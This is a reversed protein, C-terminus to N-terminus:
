PSSEKNPVVPAVEEEDEDKKEEEEKVEEKKKDAEEEKAEVVEEVELDVEKVIIGKMKKMFSDLIFTTINVKDHLELLSLKM